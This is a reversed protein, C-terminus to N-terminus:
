INTIIYNMFNRNISISYRAILIKKCLQRDLINIMIILYIRPRYPIINRLKYLLEIILIRLKMNSKTPDCQNISLRRLNLYKVALM